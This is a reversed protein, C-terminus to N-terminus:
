QYGRTRAYMVYNEREPSFNKLIGENKFGMWEMWKRASTYDEKVTAQVRHLKFAQEVMYLATMVSRAVFIKHEEIKDSGILYVDAVGKWAIICGTVNVIEGDQMVTHSHGKNKCLWSWDKSIEGTDNTLMYMKKNRINKELIALHSEKFPIINM